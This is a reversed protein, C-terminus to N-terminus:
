DRERERERLEALKSSVAAKKPSVITSLVHMVGIM